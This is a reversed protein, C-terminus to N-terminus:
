KCQNMQGYMNNLMPNMNFTNGMPMSNQPFGQLGHPQANMQHNPKPFQSSKPTPQNMTQNRSVNAIMSTNNLNQSPNRTDNDLYYDDLIDDSEDEEEEEVKNLQEEINQVRNRVEAVDEKLINLSEMMQRMMREINEYGSHPVPTATETERDYQHGGSEELDSRGNASVFSDSMSQNTEFKRTENHLQKIEEEVVPKLPHDKDVNPGDLLDITQKLLDRAKDLYARKNKRPTDSIETMKRYAQAQSYTAFPLKIGALDEICEEFAHKNFYRCTVFLIADEALKNVEQEIEFYNSGVSYKFLRRFPESLSRSSNQTRLM